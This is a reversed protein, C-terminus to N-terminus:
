VLTNIRLMKNPSKKRSINLKLTKKKKNTKKEEPFLSKIRLM